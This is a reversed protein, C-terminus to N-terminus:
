RKLIIKINKVNQLGIESPKLYGSLCNLLESWKTNVHDNKMHLLHLHFGMIFPQVIYVNWHFRIQPIYYACDGLYVFIRENTAEDESLKMYLLIFLTTKLVIILYMVGMIYRLYKHWKPEMLHKASKRTGSHGLKYLKDVADKSILQSPIKKDPKIKFSPNVENVRKDEM